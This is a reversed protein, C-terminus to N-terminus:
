AAFQKTANCKDEREYVTLTYPVPRLGSLPMHSAPWWNFETDRVSRLYGVDIKGDWLSRLLINMSRSPRERENEWRSYTKAGIQLLDSMAAQSLRLRDRLMRIEQPLLLGMHRARAKDILMLAEGGLIIEGTKANIRCPVTITITEAVSKGDPTPITVPVDAKDPYRTNM